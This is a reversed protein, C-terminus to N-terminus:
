IVKKLKLYFYAFILILFDSDVKEGLILRLLLWLGCGFLLLFRNYGRINKIKHKKLKNIIKKMM